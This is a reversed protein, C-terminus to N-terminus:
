FYKWHFSVKALITARAPGPKNCHFTSQVAKSIIEKHTDYKDISWNLWDHEVFHV